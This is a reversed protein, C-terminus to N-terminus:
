DEEEVPEMDSANVELPSFENFSLTGTLVNPIISLPGYQDLRIHEFVNELRIEVKEKILRHVNIKPNGGHETLVFDKLEARVEKDTKDLTQQRELLIELRKSHADSANSVKAKRELPGICRDIFEKQQKISKKQAKLFSLRDNEPFYVGSHLYTHAGAEAGILKAEIGRLAVFEGGSIQGNKVMIAGASKVTSNRIENAVVVDGMCEVHAANIYRAHLDGECKIYAHYQGSIGGVSINGGANLYCAGVTGKITIDKETTIDFDDLVDGSVNVNGPFHINGVNLDVDGTVNYDESVSIVGDNFEARGSIDSIVENDENLHCGDGIKVNAPTGPKPSLARGTVTLSEEGPEPPHLIAVCQDPKICTFLNLTYLDIRGEEDEVFDQPGDYEPGLRVKFELWGDEGPLAPDTRAVVMHEVTKGDCAAACLAKISPMDIGETVRADQMITVVDESKILGNGSGKPAVSAFCKMEDKTLSLQLTWNEREEIAVIESDHPSFPSEPMPKEDQEGPTDEAEKAM